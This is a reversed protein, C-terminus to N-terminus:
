EAVRAQVPIIETFPPLAPMVIEDVEAPSVPMPLLWIWAQHVSTPSVTLTDGTKLRVLVDPVPPAHDTWYREIDLRHRRARRWNWMNAIVTLFAFGAAIWIIWYEIM